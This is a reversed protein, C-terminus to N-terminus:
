TGHAKGELEQMQTFKRQLQIPFAEVALICVLHVDSSINIRRYKGDLYDELFLM